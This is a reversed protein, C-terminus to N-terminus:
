VLFKLIFGLDLRWERFLDVITLSYNKHWSINISQPLESADKFLANPNLKVHIYLTLFLNRM